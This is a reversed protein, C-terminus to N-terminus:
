GARRALDPSVVSALMRRYVAETAGAVRRWDYQSRVRERAARGMQRRLDPADLLRRVAAAARGPQRPPVLLGTQGHVITDLLGGVATGVVPKGAAMVELPVIGFPEYWPLCVALDAQGVLEPIQDRAVAGLFRVRDAVGFETAMARLRAVEEDGDLRDPPPGGAVMLDVDPLYRLMHIAEGVGKRAVLRSLSLVRYQGRPKPIDAEPRGDFHGADVGCPVIDVRDIDAGLQALERVEDTCTAIVRDMRRLLQREAPIRVSPSTDAEAQHRRKVTGLAHFTIATPIGYRQAGQLSTVGSMWFHAHVIDPRWRGWFDTLRAAFEPLYPGLGDKPIHEAPGASVHHVTVGDAIEVMEPLDPADRRTHVVVENGRAALHRSLADVHVNQGGADVGGLLALPSAHESVMAIRM